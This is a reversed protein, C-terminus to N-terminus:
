EIKNFFYKENLNKYKKYGNFLLISISIQIFLKNIIPKKAQKIFLIISNFFISFILFLDRM